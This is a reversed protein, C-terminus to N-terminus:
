WLPAPGRVGVLRLSTLPGEDAAVRLQLIGVFKEDCFAEIVAHEARSIRQIRPSFSAATGAIAGATRAEFCSIMTAVVSQDFARLARREKVCLGKMRKM